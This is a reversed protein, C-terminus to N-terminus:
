SVDLFYTHVDFVTSMWLKQMLKGYKIEEVIKNRIATMHAQAFDTKRKRSVCESFKCVFVGCDFYNKQKPIDKPCFCLWNYSDVTAYGRGKAFETLFDEDSIM